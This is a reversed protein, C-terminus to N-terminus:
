ARAALWDPYRALTAADPPYTGPVPAGKAIEELLFEELREKEAAEEGIEAAIGRPIVVVGDGDGILVDGPYVPADGCGIPVEIDVAHHRTLNTPASPGACFVPMDLEAIADCDRLAGDTVLGACGRVELRKLLVGGAAASRVERRCDMVLVSGAPVREIALRQPHAPDRFTAAVDVDERAPIYRLTFAPGVLPLPRRSLRRVGQIYQSRLGRQFLFTAVTATTTRLLLARLEDRLAHGGTQPDPPM